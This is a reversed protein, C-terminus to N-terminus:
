WRDEGYNERDDLKSLLPNEFVQWVDSFDLGHKRINENNKKEDWEFRM